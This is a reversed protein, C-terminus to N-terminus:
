TAGGARKAVWADSLHWGALGLLGSLIVVLQSFDFAPMAVHIGALALFFQLIPLAIWQWTLALACDYGVLARWGILWPHVAMATNTAAQANANAILAAQIAGRNNVEALRIKDFGDPDAALRSAIADPEAPVGVAASILSGALVGWPGAADLGDALFPAALAIDKKISAWSM